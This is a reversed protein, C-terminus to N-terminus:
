EAYARDFTADRFPLSEAAGLRLEIRGPMGAVGVRRRAVELMEPLADVGTLSVDHEGAIRVLTAGTGCGIELVHQSSRLDLAEILALTAPVGGPHLYATGRRAAHVLFHPRSDGADGSGVHM